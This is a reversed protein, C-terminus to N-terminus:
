QLATLILAADPSFGPYRVSYVTSQERGTSFINKKMDRERSKVLDMPDVLCEMLMTSDEKLLAQVKERRM